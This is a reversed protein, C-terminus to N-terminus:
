EFVPPQDRESSHSREVLTTHLLRLEVLMARSFGERCPLGLLRHAAALARELNEGYAGNIDGRYLGARALLVQAEAVEQRKLKRRESDRAPRKDTWDVVVAPVFGQWWPDVGENAPAPNIDQPEIYPAVPGAWDLLGIPRVSKFENLFAERAALRDRDLEARRVGKPEPAIDTDISDPYALAAAERAAELVNPRQNSKSPGMGLGFVVCKMFATDNLSPRELENRAMIKAVEAQVYPLVSPHVQSKAHVTGVFAAAVYTDQVRVAECINGVVSAAQTADPLSPWAETLRLGVYEARLQLLRSLRGTERQLGRM